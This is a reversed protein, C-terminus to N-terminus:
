GSKGGRGKATGAKGPVSIPGVRGRIAQMAERAAVQVGFDPDSPLTTMTELADKGGVDKLLRCSKARVQPDPDRLLAILAPEAAPGLARLAPEVKLGDEKLRAALPGAARPDGLKGLLEEAEWRVGFEPRDLVKILASATEDTRWRVMAHMVGNVFFGDGDALLAALQTHVEDRRDDGPTMRALAAVGENRGGPRSSRLAFLARTLDDADAPPEPDGTEARPGATASEIVADRAAQGQARDAKAAALEAAPIPEAKVFIRRGKVAAKGFPIKRSFAEPDDVPWVRFSARHTDGRSQSTSQIGKDGAGELLEDLKRRFVAADAADHLQIFVEAYPAPGASEKFNEARMLAQEAPVSLQEVLAILQTGAGGLGPLGSIRRSEDRTREIAKRQDGAVRRLVEADEAPTAQFPLRTQRLDVGLQMGLSQLQEGASKLTPMDHVTALIGGLRDIMAISLRAQREHTSLDRLPPPPLLPPLLPGPDPYDAAPDAPDRGFGAVAGVVSEVLGPTPQREEGPRGENVGSAPGRGGGFVALGIVLSALAAVGAGLGILLNSSPGGGASSRTRPLATPAPGVAEEGDAGDDLWSADAPSDPEDSAGARPRPRARGAGPLTGGAAVGQGRTLGPDPASGSSAGSVRFIRECGKCRLKKGVLSSDLSSRRGCGPCIVQFTM